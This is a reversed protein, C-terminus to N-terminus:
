RREPIGRYSAEPPDARGCFSIDAVRVRDHARFVVWEEHDQAFLERAQDVFRHGGKLEVILKRGLRASEELVDSIDCGDLIHGV